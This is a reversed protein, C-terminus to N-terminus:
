NKRNLTDRLTAAFEYKEDKLAKQLMKKLEPISFYGLEEASLTETNPQKNAPLVSDPQQEFPIGVRDFVKSYIYVPAGSRIALAVADSTRADIIIEGDKNVIHLEAFFVDNIAEYIVIKRLHSEFVTLLNHILDHTLPRPSQKKNIKLAISQAESEGIMISFRRNGYVESLVLGYTGAINPNYVLGAVALQIEDNM